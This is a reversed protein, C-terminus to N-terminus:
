RLVTIGFGPTVALNAGASLKLSRITINSNVTISGGVIVVDTNEDPLTNCSWNAPNEWSTDALGIWTNRVTLIFELSNKGDVLCRYRVGYWASSIDQLQLTSNNTGTHTNDDAINLYGAGTDAQWQYSNGTLNSTINVDDAPPCLLTTDPEYIRNRLVLLQKKHRDNVNYGSVLIDAKGDKDLDGINVTQLPHGSKVTIGDDFDINGPTSSNKLILLSDFNKLLAIEPMADGDLDGVELTIRNVLAPIDVRPAFSINGMTGTNRFVMVTDPRIAVMDVKSDGDIDATKLEFFDNNFSRGTEIFIRPGFSVTGPISTNRFLFFQPFYGGMMVVDGKGDQDFDAIYVQNRTSAAVYGTNINVPAAFSINGNSSTNRCVSFAKGTSNCGFLLDTKGDKDIDAVNIHHLADFQQTSYSVYPAFSLVAQSSTNKYILVGLSGLQLVALDLKGDGDFDAARLDSGPTTGPLMMVLASDITINGPTNNSKYVTVRNAITFAQAPTKGNDNFTAIDPIGDNNFDAVVPMRASTLLAPSSFANQDLVSGAGNAFTVAFPVASFATLSDKTVSVPQFSAGAPVTVNLATTSAASVAAQVAGFYVINSGASPSFNNGTIVVQTGVPGSSPNVQNIVPIQARLQVLPQTMLVFFFIILRTIKMQAFTYM